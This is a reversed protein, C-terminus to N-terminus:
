RVLIGLATDKVLDKYPNPDLAGAELALLQEVERRIIRPTLARFVHILATSLHPGLPYFM